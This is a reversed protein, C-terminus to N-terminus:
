IFMEIQSRSVLLTVSAIANATIWEFWFPDCFDRFIPFSSWHFSSHNANQEANNSLDILTPLMTFSELHQVDSFSPIFQDFFQERRRQSDMKEFGFFSNERHLLICVERGFNTEM